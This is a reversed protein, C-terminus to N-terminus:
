RRHIRSSHKELLREIDAQEEPSLTWDAAEVLDDVQAPSRVGAIASTIEPRRLLWALALQSTSRGYKEAFASLSRVLEMHVGLRPESFDPDNRRHDEPPFNRVRELTMAGTLLGKQMPSYALVGVHNKECYPLVKQEIHRVLMSYPPQLSAVPAIDGIRRLQEINFNSVAAYRVTGKKVAEQIAAWAEEIDEDPRPWHIQYIDITDTELRKLSAEIERIISERKLSSSVNGSDDCVLGCKTAIVPRPRVSRVAKAVVREAHGCGYVAATDIWNIGREIGRRIARVSQGDDQPGWGYRWEGGGIAWTGLGIVSLNLGTWGLRRTKM